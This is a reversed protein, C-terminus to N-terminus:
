RLKRIMEKKSGDALVVLKTLENDKISYTGNEELWGLEKDWGIGIFTGDTQYVALMSADPTFNFWKGVILQPYNSYDDPKNQDCGTFVLAMALIALSFIKKM